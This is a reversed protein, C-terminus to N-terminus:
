DGECGRRFTALEPDFRYWCVHEELPMAGKWDDSVGTPKGCHACTGGDVVQDLLRLIARLPQLAAACESREEGGKAVPRGRAWRWTGVAIWVVPKEDDSYRIQFSRAGTRHLLEISAIFRPDKTPDAPKAM